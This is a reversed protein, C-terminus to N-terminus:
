SPETLLSAQRHERSREELSAKQEVKNRIEADCRSAFFVWEAEKKLEWFRREPVHYVVAKKKERLLRLVNLLTGVSKGDWIMLGVTAQQSMLRDKAAYFDFNKERTGSSVQRLKWNGVNNRCVSGACFVEVNTYHKGHLYQQVAKDAGNADGIVVPLQKEVITDLRQQVEPFLRSVHRSGGIFVTIM